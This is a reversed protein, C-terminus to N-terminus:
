SDRGAQKRGEEAASRLMAEYLEGTQRLFREETFTSAVRERAAAGLQRRRAQDNLLQLTSRVFGAVDGVPLLCGSHGHEIVDRNGTADSAVVPVRNAMAELLSYPLGEYRSTLLAVDFAAVLQPADPRHGLVQVPL